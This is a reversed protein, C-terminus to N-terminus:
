RNFFSVPTEQSTEKNTTKNAIKKLGKFIEGSEKSVAKTALKTLKPDEKAMQLLIAMKVKLEHNEPRDLDMLDKDFATLLKKDSTQFKEQTIYAYTQEALKKDVPIGDFEKAKLKDSLIKNVSTVYENKIHQRRAIDAEKAQVDKQIAEEERQILIRQAETSEEHLDNYNKLQTIKKEISESSRGESRYFERVIREQNGEDNIDLGKISQIKTYRNLYDEPKIGKIFVNEFMDTYEDGFRGLFKEVTESLNKRAQLQFKELLNEPNQTNTLFEEEDEDEDLTFVGHDILTKAISSYPNVEKDDGNEDTNQNDDDENDEEDKKGEAKKEIATFVDDAKMEKSPAITEKVKKKEKKDDGKSTDEEDDEAELKDSPKNIFKLDNPDSNLFTEALVEQTSIIGFDSPSFSSMLERDAM